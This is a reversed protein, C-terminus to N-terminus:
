ANLTRPEDAPAGYGDIVAEALEAREHYPLFAGWAAVLTAEFFDEETWGVAALAEFESVMSVGSVLRNDTNVTVAFGLDRLEHMPHLAVSEAVGTQVNSTPCCELPIQQDMVYQAVEGLRPEDGGFGEIDEHLRVGHGIRRAAGVGLAASISAVGDAEGAHITVPVHHDRLLAFAQAHQTPPFGFEPGAIDFGVCGEGRNDLVLQAIETSRDLHRMACLLAAARIGFGEEAAQAIGEQIGEHVADVVEKLSLGQQLHQEPAYRLEV